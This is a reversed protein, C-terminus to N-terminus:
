RCEPLELLNNTLRGDAITQVYKNGNASTRVCLNIKEAGSKVYAQGKRNDIFDVMELRTSLGTKNTSEDIWGLLEIAEHPNYHNGNDKKICTIRVSM